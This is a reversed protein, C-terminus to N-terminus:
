NAGATITLTYECTQATFDITTGFVVTVEGQGTRAIYTGQGQYLGSDGQPLSYGLDIPHSTMFKTDPKTFGPKLETFTLTNHATAGPDFALTGIAGSTDSECIYTIDVGHMSYVTTPPGITSAMPVHLNLPQPAADWQLVKETSTNCAARNNVVRLLGGGKPICGTITGDPAPISGWAAQVAVFALAALGLGVLIRTRM